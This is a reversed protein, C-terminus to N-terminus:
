ADDEPEREKWHRFKTLLEGMVLAPVPEPPMAGLTDVTLKMQHLYERCHRCLGVHKQFDLREELSMSGELYETILETMESCTLM